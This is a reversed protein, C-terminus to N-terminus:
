PPTMRTALLKGSSRARELVTRYREPPRIGLSARLEALPRPLLSELDEGPLWACARGHRGAERVAGLVGHDRLDRTLRLAGLSAIVAFSRTGQQPYSFALVCIEGLEDRGYGGLVHFLDHMDRLRAGIYRRDPDAIQDYLGTRTSLDVLGQASLGEAAMFEYYIRGLSGAPLSQLWDLRQLTPLLPRRLQLVQRGKPDQRFRELLRLGSKGRLAETLRFVQETDQPNRHLGRLARLAALPHIRTDEM